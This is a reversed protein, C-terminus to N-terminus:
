RKKRGPKTKINNKIAKRKLKHKKHENRVIDELTPAKTTTTTTTAWGIPKYPETSLGTVFLNNPTNNNINYVFGFIVLSLIINIIVMSLIIAIM